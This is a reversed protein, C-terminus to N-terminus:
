YEEPLLVTSYTTDFDGLCTHVWIRIGNLVYESMVTGMNYRLNTNNVFVDETCTLGYDGDQHRTVCQMIQQKTVAGDGILEVIGRTLFLDGLYM